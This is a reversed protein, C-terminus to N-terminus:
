PRDTLLGVLSEIRSSYERTYFFDAVTKEIRRPHKAAWELGYRLLMVLAMGELRSDKRTKIINRIFTRGAKPLNNTSKVLWWRIMDNWPMDLLAAIQNRAANERDVLRKIPASTASPYREIDGDLLMTLLELNTPNLQKFIAPIAEIHRVAPDAAAYDSMASDLAENDYDVPLDSFSLMPQWDSSNGLEQFLELLSEQSSFSACIIKQLADHEFSSSNKEFDDIFGIFDTWQQVPFDGNLLQCNKASQAIGALDARQKKQKLRALAQLIKRILEM